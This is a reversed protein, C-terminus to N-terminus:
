ENPKWVFLGEASALMQLLSLLREDPNYITMYLDDPRIDIMSEASPLVIHLIEEQKMIWWELLEPTPNTDYNNHNEAWVEFDYYCNLKLLVSLFKKRLESRHQAELYYQEIAFFQGEGGEPVREPLIDIVWYQKKYYDDFM